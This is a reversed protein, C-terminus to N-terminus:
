PLELSKSKTVDVKETQTKASDTSSSKMFAKDGNWYSLSLKHRKSDDLRVMLSTLFAMMQPMSDQVLSNAPLM